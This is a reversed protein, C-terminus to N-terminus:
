ESGVAVGSKEELELGIASCAAERIYSLSSDTLDMVQLGSRAVKEALEENMDAHIM